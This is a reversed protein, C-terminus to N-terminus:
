MVEFAIKACATSVPSASHRGPAGAILRENLVETRRDRM